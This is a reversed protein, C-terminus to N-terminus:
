PQSKAHWFCGWRHAHDTTAEGASGGRDGAERADLCGEPERHDLAGGRKPAANGIAAMVREIKEIHAGAIERNAWPLRAIEQVPGKTLEVLSLIV